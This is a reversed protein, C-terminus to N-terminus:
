LTSCPCAETIAQRTHWARGITNKKKKRTSPTTVLKGRTGNALGYKYAINRTIMVKCGRVLNIVRRLGDFASSPQRKAAKHM